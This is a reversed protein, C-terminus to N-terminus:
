WAKWSRSRWLHYLSCYLPASAIYKSRHPKSAGGSPVNGSTEAGQLNKQLIHKTTDPTHGHTRQTFLLALARTRREPTSAHLFCKHTEYSRLLSSCTLFRQQSPLLSLWNNQNPSNNAWIQIRTPKPPLNRSGTTEYPFSTSPSNGLSDTIHRSAPQLALHSRIV